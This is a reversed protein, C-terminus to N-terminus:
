RIHPLVTCPKSWCCWILLLRCCWPSTAGCTDWLLLSPSLSLSPCTVLLSLFSNIKKCLTAAAAPGARPAAPMSELIFTLMVSPARDQDQEEMLVPHTLFKITGQHQHSARHRLCGTNLHSSEASVARVSQILVM